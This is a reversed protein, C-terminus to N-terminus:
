QPEKQGSAYSMALPASHLANWAHSSHISSGSRPILVAASRASLRLHLTSHSAPYAQGSLADTFEVTVASKPIGSVTNLNLDIEQPSESRNIAVIDAHVGLVRAFAFVRKEDDALLPAPYGSQLPLNKNRTEILKKYLDLFDNDATATSWTMARRNDPDRGGEMGLEDGYYINPTGVWTFQLAAALKALSRDGNCLTLIRPTDHSGILNMLNRSVQPPYSHYVHMLQAELDSPKGSGAKTVFGLVANRFQYNMVSDWQDGKLWPTGDGWVEGVIWADKDLSKVKTRFERWFGPDVENAADLRWGSINANKQWYEPIGLVYKRVDSSDYNLKPMSASNAWGLYNPNRQVRVPFSKFTYWGTFKSDAGNKVVDAFASFSTSTHNFVGDLVTRIGANRLDRTLNAFEQNTGFVPDVQLYDTTSYRHNAPSKFIPNFYVTSIGLGKLYGLHQEIGAVDGGFYNNYSPRADWPQVNKPDNTPDGNAFRDPFIQYIVSHEVWKPVEFPQYTAANVFYANSRDSTSTIGKPGFVVPGKGDDLVFRYRLDRKRNWPFSATYREYLEDKEFSTMPYAGVRDVVLKVNAIDSVRTRLSLNVIGRDVNFFPEEISHSLASETIVGDGEVGPEVYTTPNIVILSNTNGTGDDISKEAKPDTIWRDGNLVFKYQYAGPKLLVHKSWTVGDPALEMADADKNWGDFSGAVSVHHLAESARYVFLHDVEASQLWALLACALM